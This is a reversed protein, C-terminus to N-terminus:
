DIGVMCTMPQRVSLCIFLGWHRMMLSCAWMPAHGTYSWSRDQWSDTGFEGEQPITHYTWRLAGTRVDFARVDGRYAEKNSFSDSM